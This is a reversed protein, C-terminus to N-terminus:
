SRENKRRPCLCFDLLHQLDDIMLYSCEARVAKAIEKLDAEDYEGEKGKAQYCSAVVKVANIVSNTIAYKERSMKKFTNKAM